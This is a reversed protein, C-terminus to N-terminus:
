WRFPAQRTLVRFTCRACIETATAFFVSYTALIQGHDRRSRVTKAAGRGWVDGERVVAAEEVAGPEPRTTSVALCLISGEVFSATGAAETKCAVACRAPSPSQRRGGARRGETGFSGAVVYLKYM